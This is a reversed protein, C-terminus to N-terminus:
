AHYFRLYFVIIQLGEHNWVMDLIVDVGQGETLRSVEVMFDRRRYDIAADAGLKLAAEAKEPTGVTCFVRAGLAKAM